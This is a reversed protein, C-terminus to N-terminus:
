VDLFPNRGTQAADALAALAIEMAGGHMPQSTAGDFPESPRGAAPPEEGARPALVTRGHAGLGLRLWSAAESSRCVALHQEGRVLGQAVEPGSIGHLALLVLGTTEPYSDSDYGLARTSGHNWGGDRCRRALLFGRGQDIRKMLNAHDARGGRRELKQLALISVATPGVWAATGPYWPWGDFNMSDASDAGLMWLRIRNVWGSERGTQAVTWTEARNRDIDEPGSPLLLALATLWTSEQVSERPALGGDARQCRRLWEMGRRVEGAHGAGNAALALIAYCTPETWSGGRHYSWGGDANQRGLLDESYRMM